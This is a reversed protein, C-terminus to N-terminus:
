KRPVRGFFDFMAAFNPEVVNTHNGGPVEIYQVEAGVNKLAAVMVRSGGVPVTPDADGHVVFQPITGITKATSAVGFGSFVGLASWITPTKAAIAWTGIAGMSHGVLYIRTSDVAYQTRVAALVNMVDQESLTRARVAAPDNGGGLAVGYGGDVRYGLPAAIIYGRQEALKPLTGGYAEFFSDETAGLGHLAVILPLPKKASYATPIYLRYPMIEDAAELRYHRKLDGTRGVWPNKGATVSKLLSEAAAFDRAANFTGLAVRSANVTRMRDIPFLVDSRLPEPAKAAAAELRKVSADLGNRVVIGLNATGLARASDLLEVTVVYSGDPVNQMDANIAFPADRLDRPVGDFVGLEKVLALPARPNAADRSRLAVRATLPRELAITPSFSQELRMTWARSPDVILRDSRVLVSSAFEAEPTWPRKQLLANSQAFLRRLESTRGYKSASAILVDLSDIQTKLEGTPKVQNKLTTNTVSLSLIGTQAQAHVHTPALSVILASALGLSRMVFSPTHPTHM